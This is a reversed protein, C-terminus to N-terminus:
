QWVWPATCPFGTNSSGAPSWEGNLAKVRLQAGEKSNTWDQKSGDQLEQEKRPRQTMMQQDNSNQQTRHGPSRKVWMMTGWRLM